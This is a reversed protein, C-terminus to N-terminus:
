GATPKLTRALRELATRTKSEQAGAPDLGRDRLHTEFVVRATAAEDPQVKISVELLDEGDPLRWEESTLEHEFRKHKTTWRLVRIPGLVRLKGFDVPHPYFQSLFREQDSSYLEHIPRSGKAVEAIEDRKQVKTLSASCVIRDGTSDVELKFGPLETWDQPVKAPDVPRIKVTSDDNEGKVLRARLLVGANFLILDPTDYFYIVRIEASDENLELARIGRLEEDPRLTVKIEVGAVGAMLPNRRAGESTGQTPTM